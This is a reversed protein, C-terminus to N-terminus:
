AHLKELREHIPITIDLTNSITWWQFREKGRKIKKFLCACIGDKNLEKVGPRKCYYLEPISGMQHYTEYIKEYFVIVDRGLMDKDLAIFNQIYLLHTDTSPIRFTIASHWEAGYRVYGELSGNCGSIAELEFFLEKLSLM